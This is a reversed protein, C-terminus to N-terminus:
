KKKKKQSELELKRRSAEVTAGTGGSSEGKGSIRGSKVWGMYELMNPGLRPSQLELFRLEYGAGSRSTHVGSLPKMERLRLKDGRFLAVLLVSRM